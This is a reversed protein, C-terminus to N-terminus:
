VQISCGLIVKIKDCDQALTIGQFNSKIHILSEWLATKHAKFTDELGSIILPFILSYRPLSFLEMKLIISFENSVKILPDFSCCM